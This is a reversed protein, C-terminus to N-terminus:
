FGEHIGDWVVADEYEGYGDVAELDRFKVMEGLRVERLNDLWEGVDGWDDRRVIRRIGFNEDGKYLECKHFLCGYVWGDSRSQFTVVWSGTHRISELMVM